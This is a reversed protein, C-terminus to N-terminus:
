ARVIEQAPAAESRRAALVAAWDDDSRVHRVDIGVAVLQRVFDDTEYGSGVVVALVRSGGARLASLAPIATEDAAPLVIAIQTEARRRLVDGLRHSGSPAVRALRELMLQWGIPKLPSVAEGTEAALLLTYGNRVAYEGLATAAKVGLEFNSPDSGPHAFCDLALLLTPQAEDAFEKTILERSRATARWHIHRPSDGHRYPRVGIVESGYGPRARVSQVSRLNDLFDLRPLLCVEPYVLYSAPASLGQTRTFIGFPAKSDVKIQDFRCIGRRTITVAYRHEVPTSRPLFPICIPRSSQVTEDIFACVESILIQASDRQTLLKLAIEVQDGVHFTDPLRATVGTRLPYPAPEAVHASREVTLTRVAGRNLWWAAPICGIQVAAMLYLWGVQTQNAFFYLVLAAVM